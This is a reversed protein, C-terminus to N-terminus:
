ITLVDQEKKHALDDINKNAKTVKEQLDKEGKYFDDETIESAEKQKKIFDHYEHRINRVSIKSKEALSHVLRAIEKRRDENLPPVTLRIVNGDSSVSFSLRSNNEIAKEIVPLANKDWPDIMITSSDQVSINAAHKLPQRVGYLEIEIDEAQRADARGTQLSGYEKQLFDYAKAFSDEAEQITTTSM